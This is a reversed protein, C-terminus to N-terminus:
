RVACARLVITPSHMKNDRGFKSFTKLNTTLIPYFLVEADRTEIHIPSFNTLRHAIFRGAVILLLFFICFFIGNQLSYNNSELSEYINDHEPVVYLDGQEEVFYEIAFRTLPANSISSMTAM